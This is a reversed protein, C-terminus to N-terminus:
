KSHDTGNIINNFFRGIFSPEVRQDSFKEAFRASGVGQHGEENAGMQDQSGLKTARGPTHHNSAGARSYAKEINRVGPTKGSLFDAFMGKDGEHGTTADTALTQDPVESTSAM